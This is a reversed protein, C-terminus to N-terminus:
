EQNSIIPFIAMPQLAVFLDYTAKVDLLGWGFVNNPVQDPDDGGCGQTTTLPHAMMGLLGETKDVNRRLSPFAGWLLAVAGAV